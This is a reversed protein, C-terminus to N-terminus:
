QEDQRTTLQRVREQRLWKQAARIRKAHLRNSDEARRRAEDAKAVAENVAAAIQQAFREMAAAADECANRFKAVGLESETFPSQEDMANRM